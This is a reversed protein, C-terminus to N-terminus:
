EEEENGEEDIEEEEESQEDQDQTDDTTQNDSGQGGELGSYFSDVTNDKIPLFLGVKRATIDDFEGESTNYPVIKSITMPMGTVYKKFFIFVKDEKLHQIWKIKNIDFYFLHVDGKIMATGQIDVTVTRDDTTCTLTYKNNGSEFRAHVGSKLNKFLNVCKSLEEKTIDLVVDSQEFLDMLNDGFGLRTRFDDVKFEKLKINFMYEGNTAAMVQNDIDYVGKYEGVLGKFLAIKEKPINLTFNKDANIKFYDFIGITGDLAQVKAKNDVVEVSVCGKFDIAVEIANSALTISQVFADADMSYTVKNEGNTMSVKSIEGRGVKVNIIGSSIQVKNDVFRFDVVDGDSYGLVYMLEGVEVAFSEMEEIGDVDSLIRTAFDTENRVLLTLVGKKIIFSVTSHEKDRFGGIKNLTDELVSKVIKM